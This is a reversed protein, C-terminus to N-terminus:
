CHGWSMFGVGDGGSVMFGPSKKALLELYIRGYSTLGLVGEDSSSANYSVSIDGEKRSSVSGSAEGSRNSMEMIHAMLYALAQEWLEEFYDKDVQADAMELVVDFRGDDKFSPAIVEFYKRVKERSEADMM